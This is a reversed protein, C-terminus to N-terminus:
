FDIEELLDDLDKIDKNIDTELVEIEDNEKELEIVQESNETTTKKKDGKNDVCSAIVFCVSVLIIM